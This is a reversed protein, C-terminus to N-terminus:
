SPKQAMITLTSLVPCPDQLPLPLKEQTMGQVKWPDGTEEHESNSGFGKGWAPIATEGWPYYNGEEGSFLTMVPFYDDNENSLRVPTVKLQLPFGIRGGARRRLTCVARPSHPPCLPEM